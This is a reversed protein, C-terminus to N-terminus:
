RLALLAIGALVMAAGVATRSTLGERNKFFFLSVPFIMLPTSHTVLVALSIEMYHMASVVFMAGGATVIGCWAYLWLGKRDAKVIGRWADPWNRTAALQCVLASASAIITGLVAENWTHMAHGRFVNGLSFGFVTLLGVFIGKKVSAASPRHEGSVTKDRPQTFWLGFIVMGMLALEYPGVKEDILLWTLLLTFAPASSHVVSSRAPGLIRVMDFMFRRGLFTGVIGGLAFLGAEKWHWVFPTERLWLEVAFVSGAFVINVVLVIFFGLEISMRGMALRSLLINSGFCIMSLLSLTVGM